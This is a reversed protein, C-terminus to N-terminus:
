RIRAGNGVGDKKAGGRCREPLRALVEMPLESLFQVGAHCVVRDATLSSIGCRTVDGRVAPSLGPMTFQLDLM